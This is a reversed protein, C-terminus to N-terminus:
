QLLALDPDAGQPNDLVQMGASDGTLFRGFFADLVVRTAATARAPDIPGYYGTPDTAQPNLQHLFFANDTFDGHGAGVLHIQRRFGHLMKWDSAWSTDTDNTHGDRAVFLFPRNLPVSLSKGYLSGDLDVGARIQPLDRMAEATAAGGLSFGFMGLKALDLRGRLLGKADIAPLAHLVARIDGIRAQVAAGRLKASTAPDSSDQFRSPIIRGDPLEVVASEYPHDITVVVFGRSALEEALATDDSRLEQLGPSFLVVPHSGATPKAGALAGTQISEVLAPPENLQQAALDATQKPLYPAAPGTTAATPYFLQIMTPVRRSPDPVERSVTGVHAPGSPGLVKLPPPDAAATAVAVTALLAGALVLRLARATYQM